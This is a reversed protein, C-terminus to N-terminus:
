FNACVESELQNKPAYLRWDPSKPIFTIFSRGPQGIRFAFDCVVAAPDRLQSKQLAKSAQTVLITHEATSLDRGQAAFPFGHGAEGILRTGLHATQSVIKVKHHSHWLSMKRKATKRHIARKEEWLSFWDKGFFFVHFLPSSAGFRQWHIPVHDWRPLWASWPRASLWKFLSSFGPQTQTM